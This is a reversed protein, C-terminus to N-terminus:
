FFIDIVGKADAETFSDQSYSLSTLLISLSLLFLKM